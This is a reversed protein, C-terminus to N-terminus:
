PSGMMPFVLTSLSRKSYMLIQRCSQQCFNWNTPSPASLPPHHLRFHQLSDTPRDGDDTEHHHTHTCNRCGEEHFPWDESMKRRQQQSILLMSISLCQTHDGGGGPRYAASRTPTLGVQENSVNNNKNKAFLSPLFFNRSQRFQTRAGLKGLQRRIVQSIQLHFSIQFLIFLQQFIQLHLYLICSHHQKLTEVNSTKM